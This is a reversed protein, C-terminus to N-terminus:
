RGKHCSLLGPHAEAISELENGLFELLAGSRPRGRENLIALCEATRRAREARDLLAPDVPVRLARCRDVMRAVFGEVAQPVDGDERAGPLRSLYYAVLHSANIMWQELLARRVAADTDRRSLGRLDSIPKGFRVLVRPRGPCMADYSLAVPLTHPTRGPANVLHHLARRPRGFRGDASVAGEPALLVAEGADVLEVFLRLQSAIVEREFPALRRFASPTLRRFAHRRGLLEGPAKLADSVTVEEPRCGGSDAFREVWSKRLIEKLPPNGLVALVDTLLEELSREPIRRMPRLRMASLVPGVSLANLPGRLARPWTELYQGLFGRRFLDERAVFYPEV